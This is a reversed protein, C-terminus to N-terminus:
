PRVGACASINGTLSEWVLFLDQPPSGLLVPVPPFTHTGTSAYPMHVGGFLRGVGGEIRQKQRGYKTESDQQNKQHFAVRRPTFRGALQHQQGCNADRGDVANGFRGGM